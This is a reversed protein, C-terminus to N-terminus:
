HREGEDAKLKHFAAPFDTCALAAYNTSTWGGLFIQVLLIGIGLGVFGIKMTKKGMFSREVTLAMLPGPYALLSLIQGFRRVPQIPVCINELRAVFQGRIFYKNGDIKASSQQCCCQFPLM